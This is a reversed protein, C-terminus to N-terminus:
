KPARKKRTTRKPKQSTETDGNSVAEDTASDQIKVRQFGIQEAWQSLALEGYEDIQTVYGGEDIHIISRGSGLELTCSRLEVHQWKM